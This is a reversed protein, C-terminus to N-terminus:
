ILGQFILYKKLMVSIKPKETFIGYVSSGSGSMLSFLAGANYM